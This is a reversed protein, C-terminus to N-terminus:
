KLLGRQILYRRGEHALSWVTESSAYGTADIYPRTKHAVMNEELLEGLHFKAAEEGQGSYASLRQASMEGESALM